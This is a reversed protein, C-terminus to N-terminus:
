HKGHACPLAIFDNREVGARIIEDIFGERDAFKEGTETHREAAINRNGFTSVGCYESGAVNFHIKRFSPHQTLPFLHTKRAGFVLQKLNEHKVRVLDQRVTLKETFHPSWVALILGVIYADIHALKAELQFGIRGPRLIKSGLGADAVPQVNSLTRFPSSTLIRNWMIAAITSANENFAFAASRAVRFVWISLAIGRARPSTPTAMLCRSDPFSTSTLASLRYGMALM